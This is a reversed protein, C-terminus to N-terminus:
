FLRPIYPLAIIFGIILIAIIIVMAVSTNNGNSIKKPESKINTSASPTILETIDEHKPVENINDLVPINGNSINAPNSQNNLNNLIDTQMNSENPNYSNNNM